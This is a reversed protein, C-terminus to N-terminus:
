MASAIVGYRYGDIESVGSHVQCEYSVKKNVIALSGMPSAIPVSPLHTGRYYLIHHPDLSISIGGKTVTCDGM